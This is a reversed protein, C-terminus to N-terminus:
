SLQCRWERRWISRHDQQVGSGAIRRHELDAGILTFDVGVGRRLFEVNLIPVHVSQGRCANLFDIETGPADPITEAHSGKRVIGPVPGGSPFLSIVNDNGVAAVSGIYCTWGDFTGSEFDINNKVLATIMQASNQFHVNDDGTGHIFLLNGKLNKANFYILQVPLAMNWNFFSHFYLANQRTESVSQENIMGTRYVFSNVNQYNIQFM